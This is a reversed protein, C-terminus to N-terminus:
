KANLRERIATEAAVSERSRVFSPWDILVVEYVDTKIDRVLKMQVSGHEVPKSFWVVTDSDSEFKPEARSYGRQTAVATMADVLKQRDAETNTGTKAAAPSAKFSRVHGDCGCLIVGLAFLVIRKM